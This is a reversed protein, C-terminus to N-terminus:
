KKEAILRARSSMQSLENQNMTLFKHIGILIEKSDPMVHIGINDEKIMMAIESNEEGIYLIPKGAALNNYIKSPVGLGKMGKSLSVIAINCANIYM